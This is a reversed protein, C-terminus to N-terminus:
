SSRCSCTALAAGEPGQHGQGRPVKTVEVTGSLRWGGLLRLTASCSCPEAGAGRAPGGGGRRWRTADAGGRDDSRTRRVGPRRAGSTRNVGVGARAVRVANGPKDIDGGAVVLPVGAALSELVGGWGGNTVLVAARPLAGGFDLYDVVTANGPIPIGVDTDGPRGTTAIVEVDVDALAELAPRILDRPDVNHTGQTVIVLPRSARSPRVPPDAVPLVEARRAPALGGVFHVQDPLDSRPEELGPSGTALLLWPSILNTGYVQRDRPLGLGTRVTNYSRQAGSTLVRYAAWLLADRHRGWRGTAPAFPLGPPPLERSPIAPALLHVGAWPIGRSEGVL